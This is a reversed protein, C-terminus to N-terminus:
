KDNKTTYKKKTQNNMQETLFNVILYSMPKPNNLTDVILNNESNDEFVANSKFYPMTLPNNYNMILIM